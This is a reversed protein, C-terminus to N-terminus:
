RPLRDRAERLRALTRASGIFRMADFVPLGQRSRLVAVYLVVFGARPKVGHAELVAGLRERLAVPDDLGGSEV